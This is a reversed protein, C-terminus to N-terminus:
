MWGSARCFEGVVLVVMEKVRGGGGGGGMWRGGRGRRLHAREEKGEGDMEGGRKKRWSCHMILNRTSTRGGEKETKEDGNRAM